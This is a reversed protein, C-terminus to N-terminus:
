CSRTAEAPSEALKAQLAAYKAPGLRRALDAEDAARRLEAAMRQKRARAQAEATAADRERPPRIRRVIEELPALLLRYFSPAQKVQPGRRGPEVDDRPVCKREHELLGLAELVRIAADVTSLGVGAWRAILQRSPRVDGRFKCAMDMLTVWVKEMALSITEGGAGRRQGPVHQSQTLVEAATKYAALDWKRIRVRKEGGPRRSGARVPQLTRRAEPEAQRKRAIAEALPSADLSAASM